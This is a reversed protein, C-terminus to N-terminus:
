PRQSCFAPRPCTGRGRAASTSHPRRGRKNRVGVPWGGAVRARLAPVARGRRGCVGRPEQGPVVMVKEYTKRRIRVDLDEPNNVRFDPERDADLDAPLTRPYTALDEHPAFQAPNVFISVVTLDNEALSRRVVFLNNVCIYCKQHAYRSLRSGRTSCGDDSRIRGVEEQRVSEQAM